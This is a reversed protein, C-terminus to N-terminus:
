SLSLNRELSDVKMQNSKDKYGDVYGKCYRYVPKDDIILLARKSEVTEIYKVCNTYCTENIDNTGKIYGNKYDENHTVDFDVVYFALGILIIAVIFGFVYAMGNKDALGKISVGIASLALFIFLTGLAWWPGIM